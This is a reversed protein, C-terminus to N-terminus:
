RQRHWQTVQGKDELAVGLDLLDQRIKDALAYDKNSKAQQRQKIAAEISAQDLASSKDAQFWSQGSQALMGLLQGGKYLANALQQREFEDSSTYFAKTLQHLESLALPTNLDDDIAKFFASLYEDPTPISTSPPKDRIVQYFRDLSAKSQQLLADSWELPARYHASLLAYRLVEGQHDALLSRLTVFNGLSKSMKEGAMNLYGNHMWVQVFENDSCCNSQARENEHHPFTLDIGGGHIDIKHGLHAQIMASCEIHWGPRGRGWPSDWGPLEPTSPKWLIFDSAHRKYPAVEVRAGALLEEQNRKSLAGYDQMQDVQFLVHGEAEYAFGKQILTKIMNLMADINDTALPEQTPPQCNLQALDDRYAQIFSATFEQIPVNQALAAQNIKDDIDTINRVFQVQPYHRKLASVLVDFVVAPRANGIHIFNYVTPGCVYLKVCQPDLPKFPTKLTTRTDYLAITM